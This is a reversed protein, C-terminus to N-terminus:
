FTGGSLSSDATISLNGEGATSPLLETFVSFTLIVSVKEYM